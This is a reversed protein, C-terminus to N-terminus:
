TRAVASGVATQRQDSIRNTRLDHPQIPQTEEAPTEVQDYFNVDIEDDETLYRNGTGTVL